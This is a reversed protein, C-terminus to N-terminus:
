IEYWLRFKLLDYFLWYKSKLQGHFSYINKLKSMKAVDELVIRTMDIGWRCKTVKSWEIPILHTIVLVGEREPLYSTLYVLM